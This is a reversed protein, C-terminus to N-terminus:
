LHTSLTLCSAPPVDAHIDDFLYGYPKPKIYVQLYFGRNDICLDRIKDTSQQPVFGVHDPVKQWADMGAVQRRVIASSKDVPM